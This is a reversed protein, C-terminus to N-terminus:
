RGSEDAPAKQERDGIYRVFPKQNHVANFLRRDGTILELGTREALVVYAADYTTRGLDVATRFIQASHAGIDTTGIGLKLFDDAIELARKADVRKKLVASRIGNLVELPWHAPVTFGIGGEAWQGLLVRASDVDAEDEFFWKLAVSADVVISNKM